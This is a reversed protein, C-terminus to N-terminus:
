NYAGNRVEVSVATGTVDPAGLLAAKVKTEITQDDVRTGISRDSACGALPAAYFLPLLAQDANTARATLRRSMADLHAGLVEPHAVSGSATMVERVTSIMHLMMDRNNVAYPREDM